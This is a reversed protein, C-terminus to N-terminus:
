NEDEYATIIDRFKIQNKEKRCIAFVSCMIMQDIHHNIFLDMHSTLIYKLTDFILEITVSDLSLSM